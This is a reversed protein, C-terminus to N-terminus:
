SGQWSKGRKANRRDRKLEAAMKRKEAFFELEAKTFPAARRTRSPDARRVPTQTAMLAGVVALAGPGMARPRNM